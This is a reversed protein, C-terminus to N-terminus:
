GRRWPGSGRCRAAAEQPVRAGVLTRRAADTRRDSARKRVAEGRAAAIATIRSLMAPDEQAAQMARRLAEREHASMAKVGDEFRALKGRKHGM